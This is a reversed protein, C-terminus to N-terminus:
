TCIIRGPLTTWGVEQPVAPQTWDLMAGNALPVEVPKDGRMHASLVIKGFPNQDDPKPKQWQYEISGDPGDYRLIGTNNQLHVSTKGNFASPPVVSGTQTSILRVASIRPPSPHQLELPNYGDFFLERDGWLSFDFSPDDKPGPDTEYRITVTQGAYQTLDLNYPLWVADTRNVDLLKQKNVFIRFTAGDSKGVVDKNLATSGRLRIKQVHPLKFTFDQFTVGTGNHWPCHMLFAHKGDQVGFPMCSVGTHEEFHGSWGPAFLKEPGGRYAYGVSYLGIEDLKIVAADPVM